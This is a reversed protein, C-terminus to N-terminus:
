INQFQELIPPFEAINLLNELNRPPKLLIWLFNRKEKSSFTPAREIFWTLFCYIPFRKLKWLFQCVGYLFISKYIRNYHRSQLFLLLHVHAGPPPFVPVDGWGGFDSFINYFDARIKWPELKLLLKELFLLFIMKRFLKRGFIGLNEKFNWM